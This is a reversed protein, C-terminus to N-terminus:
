FYVGNKNGGKLKLLNLKAYLKNRESQIAPNYVTNRIKEITGRPLVNSVSAVLRMGNDGAIRDIIGKKVADAATLWTENEMMALADSEKMGTKEVYAAAMAQNAKKLVNSTKDMQHYDGSSEASVNHVMLMATPSIDSDGGCAIVSAASAALGVVHIKVVGGYAKLASYISSGAFIEGGGSDIYVDLQEGNAKEILEDVQKPCVYSLGLWEYAWAENNPVITGNINIRM